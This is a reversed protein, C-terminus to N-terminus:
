GSSAGRVWSLVLSMIIGLSVAFCLWRIWAYYGYFFNYDWMFVYFTAKLIAGFGTVISMVGTVPNSFDLSSLSAMANGIVSMEGTAMDLVICIAVAFVYIFILGMLWKPSM